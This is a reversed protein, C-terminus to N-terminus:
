AWLVASIGTNGCWLSFYWEPPVVMSDPIELLNMEPLKQWGQCSMGAKEITAIGVSFVIPHPFFLSSSPSCLSISVCILLFPRFPIVSVPNPLQEVTNCLHICKNYWRSPFVFVFWLFGVVSNSSGRCLPIVKDSHSSVAWLARVM